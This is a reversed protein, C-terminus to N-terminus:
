QATNEKAAYKVVDRGAHCNLRIVSISSKGKDKVDTAAISRSRSGHSAPTDPRRRRWMRPAFQPGFISLEAVIAVHLNCFVLLPRWHGGRRTRLARQAIASEEATSNISTSSRTPRTSCTTPRRAARRAPRAAWTPSDAATAWDITGLVVGDEAAFQRMIGCVAANTRCPCLGPPRSAGGVAPFRACIGRAIALRSAISQCPHLKDGLSSSRFRRARNPAVQTARTEGKGRETSLGYPCGGRRGRKARGGGTPVDTHLGRRTGDAM